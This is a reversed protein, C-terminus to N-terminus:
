REQYTELTIEERIREYTGKLSDIWDSTICITPCSLEKKMRRQLKYDRIISRLISQKEKGDLKQHHFQKCLCSAEAYISQNETQVVKLHEMDMETLKYAM